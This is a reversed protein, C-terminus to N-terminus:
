NACEPILYPRRHEAKDEESLHLPLGGILLDEVFINHRQVAEEGAWSRFTV